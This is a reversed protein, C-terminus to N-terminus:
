FSITNTLTWTRPAPIRGAALSGDPQVNVPILDKKAFVNGVNLQLRWAWKRAFRWEYGTWLDVNTEIPGLYPHALDFIQTPNSTASATPYVPYGVVERGQWRYAGGFMLGKLRGHTATYDAVLNCRWPRMESVDSGDEAKFMLYPIWINTRYLDIVTGGPYYTPGFIRQDGIVAPLSTGTVPTNFVAWRQEIWAGLSHALNHSEASTQSANFSLNWGPAPQATLEYETGKSQTDGSITFGPPIGGTIFGPWGPRDINYLAFFSDPPQNRPDLFATAIAIGDAKAQATTQGSVPQYGGTMAGSGNGANALTQQAYMYGWAEANPLAYLGNFSNLPLADNTVGTEYRNVRIAVHGDLLELLVGYDKTRGGPPPLPHGFVDIRGAEPQFNESHNYFLSLDARGPLKDRLSNPSHVVVSWSTSDGSVVNNPASPLRYEPSAFAVTGDPNTPINTRAFSDDQDHRLGAMPVVLGDFLFGQWVLGYSTVIDRTLEAHNGNVRAGDFNSVVTVPLDTWAPTAAGLNFYNVAGSAAQHVASLGPLDAGAVSTRAALSPGLYNIDGILRNYISVNGTYSAFSLDAVQAEWDYTEKDAQERSWFGTFVDRGLLRTLLSPRMFDAFQLEGFGTLRWADRTSSFFSNGFADGEMYARGYNPNPSGDPLSTNVDVTLASDGGASTAGQTTQQHDYAAEVGLRDNLFTQELTVNAIDHGEWEHKNPGDVLRNYYDFISPDQLVSARYVKFQEALSSPKPVYDEPSMVVALSAGNGGAAILSGASSAPDGFVALLPSYLGTFLGNLRPDGKWTAPNVGIRNLATFWPTIQDYPPLVHPRNAAASGHEVNIRLSTRASGRSLFKPDWRLAGYLRRDHNYAPDQEYDTLDDLTDLRLALEQPLLVTNLDLTARHSGFSGTSVAVSGQNGFSAINTNENIIGAPSGLGFLIANPGRQIDIRGTNFSDWPIDTLFLDRTNDAAALGRVRTNDQPALRAAVDDLSTGTGLGAFNGGPGGVETDTTYVLLDQSNHSNTDELFQSTVESIASGVDRLDTRIRTAAVTATADYSNSDESAYVVFPDLVIIEDAEPVPGAPTPKPGPDAKQARAPQLCFAAFLAVVVSLRLFTRGSLARPPKLSLIPM